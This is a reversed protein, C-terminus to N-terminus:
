GTELLGATVRTRHDFIREIQRRVVPLAITSAGGFPLLYEVEDHIWTARPDEADEKFRHTHIWTRYPGRIQEDVFRHPPDWDSILTRWAMPVGWLRLRYDILAGKRMEIPLPTLIRFGLEPPTIRALNAADAFFRFVEDVPRQVRLQRQLKSRM